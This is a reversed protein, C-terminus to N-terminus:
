GHDVHGMITVVPPRPQAGGNGKKPAAAVKPKPADAYKFTADYLALFKEVVEDKLTTTVTAMVRLKQNLQKQAEPQPIGLAHALDRITPNPKLVLEKSGRAEDLSERILELTDEDADFGVGDHEIGLEALVGFAAGPRLEYKKAIDAIKVTMGTPNKLQTQM